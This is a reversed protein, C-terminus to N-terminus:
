AYNKQTKTQNNRPARHTRRAAALRSFEELRPDLCAWCGAAIKMKINELEAIARDAADEADDLCAVAVRAQPSGARAGDMWEMAAACASRIKVIVDVLEAADLRAELIFDNM